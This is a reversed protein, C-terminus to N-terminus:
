QSKGALKSEAVKIREVLAIVIKAIGDTL